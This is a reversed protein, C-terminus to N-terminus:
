FSMHKTLSLVYVRSRVFLGNCKVARMHLVASPLIKLRNVSPYLVRSPPPPNVGDGDWLVEVPGMDKGPSTGWIWGMISRVLPDLPGLGGQGGSKSVVTISNPPGTYLQLALCHIKSGKKKYKKLFIELVAESPM